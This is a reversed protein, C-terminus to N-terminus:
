SYRCSSFPSLLSESLLTERSELGVYRRLNMIEIIKLTSSELIRRAVVIRWMGVDHRVILLSSRM